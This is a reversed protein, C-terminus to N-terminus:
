VDVGEILVEEGLLLSLSVTPGGEVVEEVSEVLKRGFEGVGVGLLFGFTPGYAYGCLIPLLLVLTFGAPGPVGRLVANAATLVGLVSEKLPAGRDALDVIAESMEWTGVAMLAFAGVISALAPVIVVYRSWEVM